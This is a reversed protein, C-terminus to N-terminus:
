TKDQMSTEKLEFSQADSFYFFTFVLKLVVHSSFLHGCVSFTYLSCRAKEFSIYFRASTLCDDAMNNGSM